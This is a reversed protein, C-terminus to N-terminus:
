ADYEWYELIENLDKIHNILTQKNTFYLWEHVGVETKEEIPNNTLIIDYYGKMFFPRIVIWGKNCGYEGLLYDKPLLGELVIQQIEKKYPLWGYDTLGGSLKFDLEKIPLRPIDSMKIEPM